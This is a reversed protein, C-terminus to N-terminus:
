FSDGDPFPGKVALEFRCYKMAKNDLFSTPSDTIELMVGTSNKEAGGFDFDAWVELPFCGFSLPDVSFGFPRLRGYPAKLSAKPLAISRALQM